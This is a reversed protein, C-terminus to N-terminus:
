TPIQAQISPGLALMEEIEAIVRQPTIAQMCRHDYSCAALSTLGCRACPLDFCKLVVVNRGLPGQTELASVGAHLCLTRVGLMAALHTGGSDHGIYLDLQRIAQPLETLKKAGVFNVIKDSSPNNEEVIAIADRRQHESGILVITADHQAILHRVVSGFNGLPWNKTPAGSGTNIGVLPGTGLRRLPLDSTAADIEFADFTTRDANFLNVIGGAFAGLLLQTHRAYNPAEETSPSPACFYFDMPPLEVLPDEFGAKLRASVHDLLFRSEHAIRLDVAIDFEPFNYNALVKPDFPVTGAGSAETFIDACVVRNFLGLGSALERSWSACLLTIRAAPFGRRLIEIAPLALFFDGLHDCKVILLEKVDDRDFPPGPRVSLVRPVARTGASSGGRLLLKRLLPRIFRFYVLERRSQAPIISFRIRVLKRALAVAVSDTATRDRYPASGDRVGMPARTPGPKLNPRIVRGQYCYGSKSCLTAAFTPTGRRVRRNPVVGRDIEARYLFMGSASAGITKQQEGRTAM